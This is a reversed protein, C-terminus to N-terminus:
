REPEPAARDGARSPGAAVMRDLAVLAAPPQHLVPTNAEVPAAATHDAARRCAAASPDSTLRDAGHVPEHRRHRPRHPATARLRAGAALRSTIPTPLRTKQWRAQAHFAVRGRPRSRRGLTLRQRPERRHKQWSDNQARCRHEIPGDRNSFRPPLRCRQRAQQGRRGGGGTAAFPRAPTSSLRSRSFSAAYELRWALAFGDPAFGRRRSSRSRPLRDSCATRPRGCHGARARNSSPSTIWRSSSSPMCTRGCIKLPRHFSVLRRSSMSAALRSLSSV